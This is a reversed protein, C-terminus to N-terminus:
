RCRNWTTLIAKNKVVSFLFRTQEYLDLKKKYNFHSVLRVHYKKLKTTKTNKSKKIELWKKKRYFFIINIKIPWGPITM